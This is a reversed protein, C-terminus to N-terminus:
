SSPPEDKVHGACSVPATPGAHRVERLLRERLRAITEEDAEEIAVLHNGAGDIAAILTGLKLQLAASLARQARVILLTCFLNAVGTLAGLHARTRSSLDWNWALVNVGVVLVLMGLVWTEPSLITTWQLFRLICRDVGRHPASGGSGPAEGQSSGEPNM